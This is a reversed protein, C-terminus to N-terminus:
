QYVFGTMLLILGVSGCLPYTLWRPNSVHQILIESTYLLILLQALLFVFTRSAPFLLSVMLLLLFCGGLLYDFPTWTFERRDSKANDWQMLTLLLLVGVIATDLHSLIVLEASQPSVAVIFVSIGSVGFLMLRNLTLARQQKAVISLLMLGLLVLGITGYGELHKSHLYNSAILYVAYLVVLSHFWIRRNSVRSRMNATPNETSGETSSEEAVLISQPMLHPYREFLHLMSFLFVVILLYVALLLSEGLAYFLLGSGVFSVHIAYLSIVAQSHSLGLGLLRHHLHTKTPTFLGQGQRRRQWMVTLTDVIPLGVLFLGLTIPVDPLVPHQVLLIALIALTYGLFQSGSDGMFLRAPYTNFYLFGFLSGILALVVLFATLDGALVALVGIGIASLMTEGSALGDLGDSLNLANVVGVIGFVTLLNALFDPLPETMFPLAGISIDGFVVVPTAAIVQGLLKVSAPLEARDDLAGVTLLLMGGMGYWLLWVDDVQLLLPVLSLLTGLVIGWGGVRPIPHTHVKRMDPADIFGLQPAFQLMGRIILGSTVSAIIITLLFSMM